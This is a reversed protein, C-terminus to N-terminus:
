MRQDLTNADSLLQLMQDAEVNDPFDLLVHQRMVPCLHSHRIHWFKSGMSYEAKYAMNALLLVSADPNVFFRNTCMIAGYSFILLRASYLTALYEDISKFDSIFLFQYGHKEAISRAESSICLGRSPTLASRDMATKVVFYKDHQRIRHKNDEYMRRSLLHVNSPDNIYDAITSRLDGFILKGSHEQYDVTEWSKLYNFWQNRRVILRQFRYPINDEILLIRIGTNLEKLISLIFPATRALTSPIAVRLTLEQKVFFETFSIVESLFHGPNPGSSCFLITAGQFWHLGSVDETSEVHRLRYLYSHGGVLNVIVESDDLINTEGVIANPYAHPFPYTYWDGCLPWGAHEIRSSSDEAPSYIDTM